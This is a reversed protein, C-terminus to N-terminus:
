IADEFVNNLTDVKNELQMCFQPGYRTGVLATVKGSLFPLPARGGDNGMGGDSYSFGLFMYGM